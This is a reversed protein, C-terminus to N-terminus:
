LNVNAKCADFLKKGEENLKTEFKIRSSDM